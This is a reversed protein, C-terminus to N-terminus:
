ISKEPHVDLLYLKLYINPNKFSSIESFDYLLIHEIKLGMEGGSLNLICLSVGQITYIKYELWMAM